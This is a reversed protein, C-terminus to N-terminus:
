GLTELDSLVTSIRGTQRRRAATRQGALYTDTRNPEIVGPHSKKYNAQRRERARDEAGQEIALQRPAEYTGASTAWKLPNDAVENYSPISDKLKKLTSM